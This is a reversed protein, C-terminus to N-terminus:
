WSISVSQCGMEGTERLLGLVPGLTNVQPLPLPLNRKAFQVLTVLHHSFLSLCSIDTTGGKIFLWSGFISLFGATITGVSLLVSM